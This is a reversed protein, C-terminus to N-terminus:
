VKSIGRDNECKKLLVFQCNINTHVEATKIDAYRSGININRCQLMFAVQHSYETDLKQQTHNELKIFNRQHDTTNYKERVVRIEYTM